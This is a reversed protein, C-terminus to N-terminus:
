ARIDCLRLEVCVEIIDVVIIVLNIKWVATLNECNSCVFSLEILQLANCTKRVHKENKERSKKFTRVSLIAIFRM